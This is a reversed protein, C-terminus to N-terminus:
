WSTRKKLLSVTVFVVIICALSSAFCLCDTANQYFSACLYAVNADSKSSHSTITTWM